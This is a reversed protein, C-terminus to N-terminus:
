DVTILPRLREITKPGIGKINNLEDISKFPGYLNRYEIIAKAKVEGIYPLSVLEDMGAKNINIKTNESDSGSEKKQGNDKVDDNKQESSAPINNEEKSDEVVTEKPKEAAISQNEGGGQYHVPTQHSAPETRYEIWEYGNNLGSLLLLGIIAAIIFFALITSFAINVTKGKFRVEM